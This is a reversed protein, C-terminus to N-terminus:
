KSDLSNDVTVEDEEEKKDEQKKPSQKNFGIKINNKIADSEEQLEQKQNDISKIASYEPEFIEASIEGKELLEMLKRLMVTTKENRMRNLTAVELKITSMRYVKATEETVSNLTKSFWDKGESKDM